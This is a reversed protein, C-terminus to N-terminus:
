CIPDKQPFKVKQPFNKVRRQAEQLVRKSPHGYRKHWLDYDNSDITSKALLTHPSPTEDSLWYITQGPFHPEVTLTLSCFNDKSFCMMEADGQLKNGNLLLEGMSM